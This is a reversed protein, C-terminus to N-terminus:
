DKFVDQFSRIHKMWLFDIDPKLSKEFIIDHQVINSHQVDGAFTASDKQQIDQNSDM